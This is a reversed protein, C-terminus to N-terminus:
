RAEEPEHDFTHGAFPQGCVCIRPDDGPWFENDDYPHTRWRELEAETVPRTTKAPPPSPPPDFLDDGPPRPEDPLTMMADDGKPEDDRAHAHAHAHADARAHARSAEEAKNAEKAKPIAGKGLENAPNGAVSRSEVSLRGAIEARDGDGSIAPNGDNEDAARDRKPRIVRDRIAAAVRLKGNGGQRFPEVVEFLGAAVLKDVAGLKEPGGSVTGRHLGTADALDTYSGTWDGSRFASQPVVVWLVAREPAGLRYERGIDAIAYPDYRNVLYPDGTM